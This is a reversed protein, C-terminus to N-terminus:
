LIFTAIVFATIILLTKPMVSLNWAQYKYNLLHMNKAMLQLQLWYDYINRSKNGNDGGNDNTPTDKAM